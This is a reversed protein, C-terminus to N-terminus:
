GQHMLSTGCDRLRHSITYCRSSAHSRTRTRGAIPIMLACSPCSTQQTGCTRSYVWTQSDTVTPNSQIRLIWDLRRRTSADDTIDRRRGIYKYRSTTRYPRERSVLIAIGDSGWVTWALVPKATRNDTSTQHHTLRSKIMPIHFQHKDSVPHCM